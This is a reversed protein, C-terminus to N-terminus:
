PRRRLLAGGTGMSLLGLLTLALAPIGTQPLEDQGDAEVEAEVEDIVDTPEEDVVDELVVVCDEDLDIPGVTRVLGGAELSLSITAYPQGDADLPWALSGFNGPAVDPYTAVVVGDVLVTLTGNSWNEGEILYDILNVDIECIGEASLNASVQPAPPPPPVFRDCGSGTLRAPVTLPWEVDSGGSLVYGSSAAAKITYTGPGYPAAVEALPDGQWVTYVVGEVSPITLSGDAECTAAVVSPALTVVETDSACESGTLRAPVTLVWEADSDESLVYGSSAKAKITYTGPGYPAAVEALPSGQWVTYVVGEVSPITLSGDAECTAAVVGPASTDVQTDPNPTNDLCGPYEWQRFGIVKVPDADGVKLWFDPWADMDHGAHNNSGGPVLSSANVKIAVYAGSQNWHCIAIKDRDTYPNEESGKVAETALAPSVLGVLLLLLLGM